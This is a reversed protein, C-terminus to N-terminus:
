DRAHLGMNYPHVRAEQAKSGSRATRIIEKPM